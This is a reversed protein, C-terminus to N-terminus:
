STASRAFHRSSHSPPPYDNIPVEVELTPALLESAQEYNKSTWGQHYRRAVSLAQESTM